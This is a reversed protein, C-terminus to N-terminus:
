SLNMGKLEDLARLLEAEDDDEESSSKLERDSDGNAPLVNEGNGANSGNDGHTGNKGNVGNKESDSTATKDASEKNLQEALLDQLIYNVLSEITPYDFLLTSSIPTGLESQLRNKLEVAILSDVGLDFLRERPDIEQRPRMRLAHTLIEGLKRTLLIERRSAATNKLNILLTPKAESTSQKSDILDNFLSITNFNLKATDFDAISLEISQNDGLCHGLAEFAIEDSLMNIGQDKIRDKSRQDLNAAMGSDAWPGWNIALSPLGNLNRYSAFAGLLSNAASYNAQAASGTVSVISSFLLFHDLKLSETVRHLNIAGQVKSKFPALLNETSMTNVPGDSLEGALHFVSTTSTFTKGLKKLQEFLSNYDTIDCKLTRINAGANVLDNIASKQMKDPSRRGILIFNRAGQQMLWKTTSLGLSGLGGSIICTTDASFGVPNDSKNFDRNLRETLLKENRIAVSTEGSMICYVASDILNGNVSEGSKLDITGTKLESHEVGVSRLFGRLAGSQPNLIPSKSDILTGSLTVAIVPISIGRQTIIQIFNLLPSLQRNQQEVPNDLDFETEDLSTFSLLGIPKKSVDDLFRIWDEKSKPNVVFHSNNHKIFKSGAEVLVVDHGIKQWDKAIKSAFGHQDAMFVWSKGTDVYLSNNSEVPKWDSRYIMKTARDSRSLLADMKANRGELGIFSAVKEGLDTEISIDGIIRTGDHDGPRLTAHIRLQDNGIPRYFQISELSFPIFTEGQKLQASMVLVGFCSDIFGPHISFGSTLTNKPATLEAVAENQGLNVSKLWKYSEGVVINREAQSRYITEPDIKKSCRKLIDDWKLTPHSSLDRTITGIAHVGPENTTKEFSILRFAFTTNNKDLTLMLQVTREGTNPVVLAQPFIVQKLCIPFKEFEIEAAGFVMSLHSAGAVVLEGFVRHDELFPLKEKSFATEYFREKMLPSQFRNGILPHQYISSQVGAHKVSKGADITVEKWYPKRDFAYTPIKSLGSGILDWKPLGGSCWNAGLAYLIQLYEDTSKRMLPVWASDMKSLAPNVIASTTKALSILTPKPGIEIFQNYGDKLASQISAEFQVPKRIHDVWYDANKIENQAKEGSLNSFIPISPDSFRVELAIKRFPELIPDMLHSHFAHSVSLDRCEINASEFKSKIANIAEKEGSLVVNAPGNFAAVSVGKPNWEVLKNEVVDRSTLVALMSGSLPLKQMLQARHAILKAGDEISFIGAIAAAAYEGVSHGIVGHISGGLHKWYTAMAVELAYLAPQTNGTNNLDSKEDFLIDILSQGLIPQMVVNCQDIVSGFIPQSQYLKQGMGKYQSGQGTFLLLTKQVDGDHYSGTAITTADASTAFNELLDAAEVGSAAPVAMRHRFHTRSVSSTHAFAPWSEPPDSRLQTAYNQALLKLSIETKASLVLLNEATLVPSKVDKSIDNKANSLTHHENSEVKSEPLQGHKLTSEDEKWESMVLHVNTGSFGFSSVGAIRGIKEDVPTWQVPKQPIEVPITSWPIMPNPDSFNLHPAITKNRLSLMVKIASAIGAGAELHGMNTKVSGVRLPSSKSRHDGFVATLAGMEIPDGLPTGTGHAEIYNIQAPDVNGQAMARKIVAEQSPGSPVTLGGSSGDQNVASGRIVALIEDADKQADSLRKLLIVGGGEGRVYGNANADFTKCQGDVSLMHAKTFAISVGPHTLLQVGGALAMDCENRRLSECALHLSLLSSSCATDVVFSPGSFGFLYSIRGATPSLAIGTGYYGDIDTLPAEGIIRTANDLSSVGMFVGTNSKFLNEPIINAHEIAEWCLELLLRQQPDMSEAERPSIAFFSADFDAVPLNLFGGLKSCIKGPADQDVDYYDDASWREAPVEVIANKGQVLLDWYSDIDNAGGPFRCSAGIIAIPEATQNKSANLKSKLDKIESLAKAMLVRYDLKQDSM